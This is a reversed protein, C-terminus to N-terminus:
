ARSMPDHSKFAARFGPRAKFSGTTATPGAIVQRRISLPVPFQLLTSLGEFPQIGRVIDVRYRTYMDTVDGIRTAGQGWACEYSSPYTPKLRTNIRAIVFLGRLGVTPVASGLFIFLVFASLIMYGAHVRLAARPPKKILGDFGSSSIRSTQSPTKVM